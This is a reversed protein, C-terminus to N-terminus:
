GAPPSTRRSRRAPPATRTWSPATRRAAPSPRSARARRQGRLPRAGHRGGGRGPQRPRQLHGRAGTRADAPDDHRRAGGATARAGDGRDGARASALPEPAAGRVGGPRRHPQAGARREGHVWSSTRFDDGEVRQWAAGQVALEFLHSGGFDGMDFGRLDLFAKRVVEWEAATRRGGTRRLLAEGRRLPRGQGGAAHHRLVTSRAAPRAGERSRAHERRLPPRRLRVAGLRQGAAMRREPHHRHLSLGTAEIRSRIFAGIAPATSELDAFTTPMCGVRVSVM